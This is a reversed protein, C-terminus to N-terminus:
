GRKLLAKVPVLADFYGREAVEPALKGTRVLTTGLEADDNM